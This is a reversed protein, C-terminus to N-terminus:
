KKSRQMTYRTERGTEMEMETDIEFKIASTREEASWLREDWRDARWRDIDARRWGKRQKNYDRV